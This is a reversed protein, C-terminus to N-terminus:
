WGFRSRAGLLRALLVRAPASDPLGNQVVIEAVVVAVVVALRAVEERIMSSPLARAQGGVQRAGRILTSSSVM